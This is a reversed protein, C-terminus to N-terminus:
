AVRIAGQPCHRVCELCRICQASDPAQHIAIDVPCVQQCANCRICSGADVVLRVASVRNFPSWIAGLPCIFRCFPRRTFAMWVLFVALIVLKLGFFWGIQARVYDNLLAQPIGAELAGAPCLRSFWPEGTLFPVLLVLIVLSGYRLWGLSLLHFFNSLAPRGPGPRVPHGANRPPRLGGLLVFKWRSLSPLRIRAKEETASSNGVRPACGTASFYAARGHERPTHRGANAAPRLGAALLPSNEFSARRLRRVLRARLKFLLEQLFGFPCLWGCAGRGILAGALGLIGLVYVPLAQLVGLPDGWSLALGMRVAMHQLTGIPCAFAAAPCSYCNLALCPVGRTVEQTIYSNLVLSSALQVPWRPIRLLYSVLRTM